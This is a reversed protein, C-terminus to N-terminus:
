YCRLLLGDETDIKVMIDLEAHSLNYHEGFELEMEDIEVKIIPSELEDEVLIDLEDWILTRYEPPSSNDYDNLKPPIYDGDLWAKTTVIPARIETSDKLTIIVSGYTEM